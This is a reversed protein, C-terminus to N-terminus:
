THSSNLRTSKRDETACREARVTGHTTVVDWSGDARPRTDVVRTQRVIEAGALQASKAYALTVGSPDRDKLVGWFKEKPNVLHALVFEGVKM